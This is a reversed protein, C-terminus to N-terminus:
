APSIQAERRRDALGKVLCSPQKRGLLEARDATCAGAFEDLRWEVQRVGRGLGVCRLLYLECHLPESIPTDVTENGGGLIRWGEGPLATKAGRGGQRRRTKRPSKTKSNRCSERKSDGAGVGAVVHRDDIARITLAPFDNWDVGLGLSPSLLEERDTVELVPRNDVGVIGGSPTEAGETTFPIRHTDEGERTLM